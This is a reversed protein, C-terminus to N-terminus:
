EEVIALEDEIAENRTVQDDYFKDLINRLLAAEVYEKRENLLEYESEITTIIVNDIEPSDPDSYDALMWNVIAYGTKFLNAFCSILFSVIIERNESNKKDEELQKRPDSTRMIHISLLDDSVEEIFYRDDSLEDDLRNLEETLRNQTPRSVDSLSSNVILNVRRLLDSFIRLLSIRYENTEDTNSVIRKVITRLLTPLDLQLSKELEEKKESDGIEVSGTTLSPCNASSVIDRYKAFIDICDYKQSPNFEFLRQLLENLVGCGQGSSLTSTIFNFSKLPDVNERYGVVRREVITKTTGVNPALYSEEILLQLNNKEDEDTSSLLLRHLEMFRDEKKTELEKIEKETLPLVRRTEKYIPQCINDPKISALLKRELDTTTSKLVDSSTERLTSRDGSSLFSSSIFHQLDSPLGCSDDCENKKDGPWLVPASSSSLLSSNGGSTALVCKTGFLKNPCTWYKKESNNEESKREQFTSFNTRRSKSQRSM